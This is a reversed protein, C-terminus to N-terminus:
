GPLRARLTYVLPLRPAGEPLRWWGCQGSMANWPNWPISDHESLTEVRLGAGIGANIVEGLGHVWEFTEHQGEIADGTYTQGCEDHILENGYYSYDLWLGASTNPQEDAAAGLVPHFEVLCLFGGPRLLETVQRAWSDLDPLWNLSGKGTYIVDFRDRGFAEVADYVDSEVFEIDLGCRRALEDAARISSGSFDLGSTRAGARALSVTDTGIHCQLHLVDRDSLEGLESWEFGALPDTGAVIGDLDYFASTVHKPVRADWNARNAALPDARTDDLHATGSEAM